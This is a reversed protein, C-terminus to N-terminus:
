TISGTRFSDFAHRKNKSCNKSRSYNDIIYKVIVM